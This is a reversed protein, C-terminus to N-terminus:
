RTSTTSTIHALLREYLAKKITINEGRILSRFRIQDKMKDVARPGHYLEDLQEKTSVLCGGEASIADLAASRREALKITQEDKKRKNETIRSQIRENVDKKEKLSKIKCEPGYKIAREMLKRTLSPSQLSSASCYDLDGFLREGTLNTLPCTQLIKRVDDALDGGFTGGELFDVLQLTINAKQVNIVCTKAETETNLTAKERKLEEIECNKVEVAEKLVKCGDCQLTKHRPVSDPSDPIFPKSLFVKLEDKKKMNLLSKHLKLVKDVKSRVMSDTQGDCLAGCLIRTWKRVFVPSLRELNKFKDLEIIVENTILVSDTFTFPKVDTLHLRNLGIRSLPPTLTHFSFKEALISELEPMQRCKEQLTSIRHAIRSETLTVSATDPFLKELWAKRERYSCDEQEKLLNLQLLLGNTLTAIHPLNPRRGRNQRLFHDALSMFVDDKLIDSLTGTRSYNFITSGNRDSDAHASESEEACSGVEM